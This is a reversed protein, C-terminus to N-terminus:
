AREAGPDTVVLQGAHVQAVRAVLSLARDVQPGQWRGALNSRFLELWRDFHEQRLPARDAVEAHMRFPNGTYGEIGLLARNWFAALKPLHASWDVRAVDNFVPGLLDDVSVSAYFSEVMEAIREPSDLDPLEDVLSGTVPAHLGRPSPAAISTEITM